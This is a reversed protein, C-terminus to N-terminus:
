APRRQSKEGLAVNEAVDPTVLMFHQHIMRHRAQYADAPSTIAVKAGNIQIEGEDPPVLGYLVRM